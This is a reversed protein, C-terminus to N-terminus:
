DMAAAPVPTGPATAARATARGERPLFLAPLLTLATIVVTWWFATGFSAALADAAGPGGAASLSGGSGPLRHGIEYQLVVALIATGISGGVRQFINLASTARPIASPELSQYPAAMVPLNAMAIGFGRVFLTVALLLDDTHATSLALPVSALVAVVIGIPTIRGPGVRDVLRGAFAAVVVFGVGQPALLLGATVVDAGRVSQFYLPLLILAGFQAANLGISTIVSMTFTRNRFLSLDILAAVKSRLAHLVFGAMLLLSLLLPVLVRAQGFGGSEGAKAFGYIFLALGPSLLVLGALDFRGARRAQGAPMRLWSLVLAVLGIPVNIFFIWEWSWHDIILGGAVPGIVPSLMAPMSVIGMVKGIRQPGAAQALVAQAVPLMVGGGLGQVVRFVILSQASWALGALVSGALFVAQSAIWLQKAGFREMAWGSLPIVLSLALLYGTSAWQITALPSAFQRGLDAIAVNVITSDLLTPVSGIVLIACLWVLQRSDGAKPGSEGAAPPAVPRRIGKAQM